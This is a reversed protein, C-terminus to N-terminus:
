LLKQEALAIFQESQQILLQVEDVSLSVDDISYDGRTRRDQANILYRHFEVPVSGPKAIERGFASIVASHSSFSLGKQWLFAEAIYFMTYYARSGAFDYLGNDALLKSAALSEKAKDIFASLNATM